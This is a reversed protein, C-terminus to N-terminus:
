ISVRSRPPHWFAWWVAGVAVLGTLFITPPARLLPLPGALFPLGGLAIALGLAMGAATAPQHPTLQATAVLMAPTASQLLAIGMSLTILTQGGFALLLTAAMLAVVMWRRWGLWDAMFGGMIKGMMAALGLWVLMLYHGTEIVQFINWVASRLAIAVLLILMVWDHGAFLPEDPSSHTNYPLPPLDLRSLGIALLLLLGLFPWIILGQTVAIAGGLALGAVGPAAFLGPGSARGQTHCLALAGAGVHFAASGLGALMIAGAAHWPALGLALGLLVLGSLAALRPRQLRDTLLGAVPQGGFALLNYLLVLM